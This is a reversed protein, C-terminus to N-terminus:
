INSCIYNLNSFIIPILFDAPFTLFHLYNGRPFYRCLPSHGAGHYGSPHSQLLMLIGDIFLTYFGSIIQCGFQGSFGQGSISGQSWVRGSGLLLCNGRPFYQCLQSHGAGPYGSPHSQLDM